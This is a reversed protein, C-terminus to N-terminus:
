PSVSNSSSPTSVRIRTTSPPPPPNPPPIVGFPHTGNSPYPDKAYTLENPKGCFDRWWTGDSDQEYAFCTGHASYGVSPYGKGLDTQSGIHALKFGAKEVDPRVVAWVEDAEAAAADRQSPTMPLSLPLGTLYTFDYFQYHDGFKATGPDFAKIQKGSPLTVVRMPRSPPDCASVLLVTALTLLLRMRLETPSASLQPLAEVQSMSLPVSRWGARIRWPVNRSCHSFRCHRGLGPGRPRRGQIRDSTPRGRPRIPTIWIGECRDAIPRRSHRFQSVARPGCNATGLLSRCLQSAILLARM